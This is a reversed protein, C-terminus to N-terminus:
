GGLKASVIFVFAASASFSMGAYGFWAMAACGIKEGKSGIAGYFSGVFAALLLEFILM